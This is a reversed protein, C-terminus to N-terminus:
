DLAAILEIECLAGKPLKDIAVCSRAPRSTFYQEYIGNFVVFDNIDDLFCTTKIVHDFDTGAEKLLAALNRCVQHTQEEITEGVMEGTEPILGIQGSTYLVGGCVYAQSYPGVAAPAKTTAIIKM